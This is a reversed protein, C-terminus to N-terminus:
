ALRVNRRTEIARVIEHLVPPVPRLTMGAGAFDAGTCPKGLHCRKGSTGRALRESLVL